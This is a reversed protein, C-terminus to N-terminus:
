QHNCSSIKSLDNILLYPKLHEFYSSKTKEDMNNFNSPIFATRMGTLAGYKPALRRTDGMFIYVTNENHQHCSALVAIQKIDTKMIHTQHYGYSVVKRLSNAGVTLTLILSIFVLGMFRMGFLLVQTEHVVYLLAVSLCLFYLAFYRSDFYGTLIYPLLSASLILFLMFLRLKIEARIHLWNLMVALFFIVLLPYRKAPHIVAQVLSWSNNLLKMLWVIPSEFVSVTPAAPYDVVYAPLASIAVWSNDSIWFKGFHHHSYIIWPSIGIVFSLLMLLLYKAQVRQLLCIAMQFAMAYVLFDFRVLTAFGLLLGTLYFNGLLYTYYAGVFLLIALPISRGSFIEDLYGPYCLLAATITFGALAPLKLKIGINYIVFVTIMVVFINIVVAVIPHQGMFLQAIAIVIPYGLPFSSSYDSSFYSRLTNFKYFDEGFVTKSLEFYAWSDPSFHSLGIIYAVSSLAIATVIAIVFSAYRSALRINWSDGVTNIYNVPKM